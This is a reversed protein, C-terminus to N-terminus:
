HEDHHDDEGGASGEEDEGEPGRLQARSVFLCALFFLLHRTQAVVRVAGSAWVRTGSRCPPRSAELALRVPGGEVPRCSLGSGAGLSSTRLVLACDTVWWLLVDFELWLTTAGCRTKLVGSM